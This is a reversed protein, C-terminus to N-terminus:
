DDKTDKKNGGDSGRNEEADTNSGQPDQGPQSNKKGGKIIKFDGDQFGYERQWYQPTFEITGTNVLVSDRNARAAELGRDIAYVLTIPKVNPFNLAQLATIYNQVTPGVLSLDGITKDLRVENHVDGLSKAGSGKVAVDSTLTQGLLVKQIRRVLRDEALGFAEGRNTPAIADVDTDKPVGIVADQVAQALQEAIQGPNAGKGVLLPQGSRELFQMWFQWTAKRYFWPWFIYALLAKGRPNKWTPKHRTLLFKFATDVEIGDPSYSTRNTDIIYYPRYWLSGDRKPVFWEFPKEAMRSVIYYGEFKEWIRESVSYGFLKANFADTVIQTYHRKVQTTLWKRVEESGGELRWDVGLLTDVRTEICQQVEDDSEEIMRLDSRTACSDLVLTPVDFLEINGYYGQNNVAVERYLTRKPSSIIDGNSAVIALAGKIVPKPDAAM